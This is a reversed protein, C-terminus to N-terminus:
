SEKSPSEGSRVTMWYNEISTTVAAATETLAAREVWATSPCYLSIHGVKRCRNCEQTYRWNMRRHKKEDEPNRSESESGTGYSKWSKRTQKSNQKETKTRLKSFM